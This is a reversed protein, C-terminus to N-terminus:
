GAIAERQRVKLLARRIWAKVTGLPVQLAAAVQDHTLGDLMSLKLAEQQRRPLSDTFRGFEAWVRDRHLRELPDLAEAIMWDLAGPENESAPEISAEPRAARRIDLCRHQVIRTMWVLPSALERRYSAAHTWIRVYGDQVAEQASWPNLLIRLAVFYLWASTLDYLERFARQDGGAAAGLLWSLKEPDM